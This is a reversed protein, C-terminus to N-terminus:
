CGSGGPRARDHRGSWRRPEGTPRARRVPGVPDPHGPVGRARSRTPDRDPVPPLSPRLSCRRMPASPPIPWEGGPTPQAARAAAAQQTQEAIRRQWAEAAETFPTPPGPYRLVAPRDSRAPRQRRGASAPQGSSQAARPKYFGFYWIVAIVIAPGISFPLSRASCPSSPSAPSWSSPSGCSGRGGNRSTVASCTTSRPKTAPGRGPDAALRRPLPGARRRREPRAPGLRRPGAGPRRGVAPRAGGCLGALKVDTASRRM